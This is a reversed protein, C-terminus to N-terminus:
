PAPSYYCIQYQSHALSLKVPHKWVVITYVGDQYVHAVPYFPYKPSNYIEIVPGAQDTRDYVLFKFKTKQYWTSSSECLFPGLGGSATAAVPRVVVSGGSYLTTPNATWYDGVGRYLHHRSLFQALQVYPPAAVPQALAAGALSAYGLSFALGAGALARTARAARVRSALRGLFSAALISLFIVTPALYRTYGSGSYLAVFTATAGVTGLVLFDNLRYAVESRAVIASPTKPTRNIMGVRHLLAVLNDWPGPGGERSKRSVLGLLVCSLGAAFGAAVLVGSVVKLTELVWSSVSADGTGPGLLAGIDRLVGQLNGQRTTQVALPLPIAQYTGLADAILRIVGALASAVLSASVLPVGRLVRRSRWSDLVGVIFIPVLGYAVILPDGAAGLTLIVVGAIWGLGFRARRLAIFSLLAYLATAIHGNSHAIFEAMVVSPVGLLLTVSLVSVGKAWRRLDVSAMFAGAVIVGAWVLASVVHLLVVKSGVLVVGVAFILDDITWYSDLGSYWHSLLVNGHAMISGEGLGNLLDAGSWPTVHYGYFFLFVGLALAGLVYFVGRPVRPDPARDPRKARLVSSITVLAM